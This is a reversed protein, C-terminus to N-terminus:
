MYIHGIKYFDYNNEKWHNELWDCVTWLVVHQHHRPYRHDSALFPWTLTKWDMKIPFLYIPIVLWPERQLAIGAFLDGQSPQSRKKTPWFPLELRRTIKFLQGIDGGEYYHFTMQYIINSSGIVSLDYDNMICIYNKEATWAVRCTELKWPTHLQFSNFNVKSFINM